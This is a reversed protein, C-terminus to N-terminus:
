GPQSTVHARDQGVHVLAIVLEGLHLRVEHHRVSGVCLGVAKNRVNTWLLKALGGHGVMHPRDVSQLLIDHVEIGLAGFIIDSQVVVDHATPRKYMNNHANM